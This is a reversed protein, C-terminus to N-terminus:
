VGAAGATSVTGTKCLCSGTGLGISGTSNSSVVGAANVFGLEIVGTAFGGCIKCPGRLKELRRELAFFGQLLRRCRLRREYGSREWGGYGCESGNLYEGVRM